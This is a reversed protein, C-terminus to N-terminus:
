FRSTPCGVRVAKADQGPHQLQKLSSAVRGILEPWNQPSSQRWLCATPYWPTTPTEQMWRWDSQWPLLLWLPKGLAGALHAIATDTTLVLDLTAILAAIGALDQNGADIPRFQGLIQEIQRAAEGNQLSIWRINPLELLPLFTSLTTSRDRDARYRPNGAWNIGITLQPQSPALDPQMFVASKHLYRIASPVTEVTTQFVAPLSMLPCHHTFRPLPDGSAILQINPTTFSATLLSLLPPQVEVIIPINPLREAVLPLYRIFQITDGLGQESYLLLAPNELNSSEPSSPRSFSQGQWRPQSFHRPRPHVERFQWRIEYNPWGEAFNGARLQTLALNYRVGPHHPDRQLSAEHAALAEAIRGLRLLANGRNSAATKHGQSEARHFAEIAEAVADEALLLIGEANPIEANPQSPNVVSKAERLSQWAQPFHQQELHLYAFAVHIESLRTPCSSQASQLANEYHSQAQPFRRHSRALHGLNLHTSIKTSPTDVSNLAQLYCPAALTDRGDAILEVGLNLWASAFTPRLRVARRYAEIAHRHQALKGHAFGQAFHCEPSHPALSAARTFHVLAATFNEQHALANGLGYHAPVLAPNNESALTLAHEFAAKAPTTAGLVTLCDGLNAWALPSSPHAALAAEAMRLAPELQQTQRAILSLGLLSQHDRPSQELTQRYAQAAALLKGQAHHQRADEITCPIALTAM